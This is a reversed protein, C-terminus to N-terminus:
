VAESTRKGCGIATPCANLLKFKTRSKADMSTIMNNQDNYRQVAHASSMSIDSTYIAHCAISDDTPMDVRSSTVAHLSSCAHHTQELTQSTERCRHTSM